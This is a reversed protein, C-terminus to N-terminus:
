TNVTVTVANSTVSTPTSASDTVKLEFHYTGLTTSGSTVFSYSSSTAGSISSYSTAGPAEELWQYSYPTTGGSLGSVSLTSTQGQNVTGASASATPAVLASNVKVSVANSTVVTPTSASDTVKLEFSYTGTATSGSTVFNYSTSTAGSISSYSTAGPAEELWQYTYPSTGTTVTTSSLASTQGQDVTGASASATPAVLASNVKVSVASSTVATPTSASDTVKLEFSYTGTTTSTSTVFSYSSSTAGSISSYSGAGPAEEFWQYSYPATGTSVASSSLASTQGQDVTGASASATPAVLASNVKVSVASSTVATPTSASDTVKLEFSYTGTTTSTSTAFSYSSSTAGSISSYSGAGPAEELWQYSYPATGTSVASSSLASTQGQDVTGASASATPAVLASDVKVTIANSTVSTTTSASDTVKLEFSYTGTATSTTTAFSYSSSTAGSISSYSGAGPAEELWQYSYPTTGGSAATSTLSSTQGQDVTGASASATPAVLASNVKVSVASSTVSTPTSASDTVQLEFSYTGTITSTTTVFSYSSSTAGSISSYSGAGPAEEFWQYSYPTTGTSVTSSSLASTQGQDVTGASASATPAVLASNVKVTAATSQVSTAGLSDTVTVTISYSGASAPSYSFTSATKGSQAAGGVYWQYSSYSGSGGSAAASFTKSQGVDLTWSTPSVTVTPAVNVAVSVANSTVVTPTSASDTVQLEFSWTGTATSTTTAFSYSSSTAGNISSYSGASPAEELWQYTYPSTGTSVATSTLSSTQGQDVTGKSASATPAVLASDVKVTIANSTVSTPTSAGDTVKLEFHYTGTTTSTTTAFSYSSSTAGSISSYSGAGPAEEFWQYSYPATGTSVATSSLASTQGQDVTGASASATPAVLASNVTVSVASSTVVAGVGDTVQLKFNYSGATTSGSTVFSYSSSTAGSISSYSGAGPAEELWQYSYPATGGSVATSTLSSTQGLDVMGASASATPAVLASNVRIGAQSGTISSTVTDTATIGQSGATELTVSFVHVGADSAQFAYNSPLIAQSDSSTFQVTGTYGTAVNGYADEATVTVSGAVGATVPNTFGSVVFRAAAGANVVFTNSQGNKGVESTSISISTGSQTLTVQGTWVGDTFAGTSTPSITGSSVSLTSPQTYSTVTNGSSDEATITINFVTGATQTGINGGGSATVTFHNLSTLMFNASASDSSTDTATVTYSGFPYSSVTFATGLPIEGYANATTTAVTNGNFTIKIHSNPAFGGGSVTVSTGVLGASPSLSISAAASSQPTITVTPPQEVLTWLGSNGSTSYIPNAGNFTAIAGYWTLDLASKFSVQGASTVPDLEITPVASTAYLAGTFTNAMKDFAYLQQNESATFMIGTGQLETNILESWQHAGTNNYFYANSTSVIPVGNANIGNETMAQLPSLSTSLQIPSIDTITRTQTGNIFILRLQYTYYTANAPLTIVMQSYVNPCNTSGNNWEAEEQVIDRVVGQQIIYAPSGSGINTHSRDIRMFDATSIVKGGASNAVTATVQFVGNPYSFQLTINGNTLTAAGTNDNTFYTDTYAASPQIATDSGNWWLTLRPMSPSVEFVIMQNDSFITYNSTLGLPIKYGSAWDEVQFPIDSTSGTPCLNLSSVPIPPIPQTQGTSLLDQGSWLMTGNQLLEVLTPASSSQASFAFNLNYSNFSAAEVMIGRSDTVQVMFASSTVESPVNILYTGNTFITPTLSPNILQWNSASYNYFYFAFNQQSLSTLPETLDQTVNVCVQNSSPSNFIQVGLSCSTTYSVGYISLDALDYVVSLTGTSISPNSFWTTSLKLSTMNISEGLSPNMSSIYQLASNMYNTSQEYAYTQNGTVQLISGYYGVTFGLAKLLASNTEDTATLTQPTQSQSSEYRITAYVAILTGALVIAVLLAAIITFQGRNNM